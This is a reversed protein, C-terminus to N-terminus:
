GFRVQSKDPRQQQLPPPIGMPFNLPIDFQNPPVSVFQNKQISSGPQVQHPHKLKDPNLQEFFPPPLLLGHM